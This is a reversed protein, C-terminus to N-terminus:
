FNPHIDALMHTDGGFKCNNNCYMLNVFLKKLM